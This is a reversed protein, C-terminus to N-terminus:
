AVKKKKLGGKNAMGFTAASQMLGLGLDMGAQQEAQQAKEFEGRQGWYHGMKADLDGMGGAMISSDSNYDPQELLGQMSELQEMPLSRQRLAEALGQQKSLLDMAQQKAGLEGGMGIAANRLSSQLDAASGGGKAMQAQFQPSGEKFGANLLRQREAGEIGGQLPALWSDMQSQASGIGQARYDDGSGVNFQSFDTPSGMTRLAKAMLNQQAGQMPGSFGLSVSGDPNSTQASWPNSTNPRNWAMQEQAARKMRETAQDIGSASAATPDPTNFTVSV